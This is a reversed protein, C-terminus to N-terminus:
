KRFESYYENACLAEEYSFTQKQVEPANPCFFLGIGRLVKADSM